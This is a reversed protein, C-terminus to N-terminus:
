NSESCLHGSLHPDVWERTLLNWYMQLVKVREVSLILKLPNKWENNQISGFRDTTNFTNFQRTFHFDRTLEDETNVKLYWHNVTSKPSLIGPNSNSDYKWVNLVLYSYQVRGNMTKSWVLSTQLLSFTLVNVLLVQRIFWFLLLYIYTLFVLLVLSNLQCRVSAAAMIIKSRATYGVLYIISDGSPTM